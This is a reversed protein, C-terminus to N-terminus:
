SLFVGCVESVIWLRLTKKRDEIVELRQGELARTVPVDTNTKVVPIDEATM